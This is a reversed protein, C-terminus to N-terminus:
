RPHPEQECRHGHQDEQEQWGHRRKTRGEAQQRRFSTVDGLVASSSTNGNPVRSSGAAIKRTHIRIRTGRGEDNPEGDMELM